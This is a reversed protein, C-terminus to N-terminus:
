AYAMGFSEVFWMKAFKYEMVEMITECINEKDDMVISLLTEFDEIKTDRFYFFPKQSIHMAWRYINEYSNLEILPTINNNRMSIYFLEELIGNRWMSNIVKSNLNYHTLIENALEDFGCFLKDKFPIYITKYRNYDVMQAKVIILSLAKDLKYDNEDNCLNEPNYLSEDNCLNKDACSKASNCLNATNYLKECNRSKEDNCLNRESCLNENNIYNICEIYQAYIDNNKYKFFKELLGNRMRRKAEYWHNESKTIAYALDKISIIKKNFFIFEDISKRDDVYIGKIWNQVIEDTWRNKKNYSTLGIVLQKIDDPMDDCIPVQADLTKKVIQMESQNKYPYQGSWLHIITIGFSYSDFEPSKLNIDTYSEPPRYGLTGKSNTVNISVDNLISCIGFDGLHLGGDVDVFINSPKIDMHVIGYSHILSLAKNLFPIVVNKMNEYSIAGYKELDGNEYYPIIEFRQDCIVGEDLIPVICSSNINKLKDLLSDNFKMDSRYLKAVYSKKNYKCLYLEAQSGKTSIKHEVKYKDKFKYGRYINVWNDRELNSLSTKCINIKDM